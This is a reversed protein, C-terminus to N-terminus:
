RSSGAVPERGKVFTLFYSINIIGILVVCLFMIPYSTWRLVVGMVVPGMGLGLDSVATFIALSLGKASGAKDIAMAVLAPCLLAHGAGWLIAVAVFM